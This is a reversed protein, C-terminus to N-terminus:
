HASKVAGNGGGAGGTTVLHVGEIGALSRFGGAAVAARAFSTQIQLAELRLDVSHLEARRKLAEDLAPELDRQSEAPVRVDTPALRMGWLADGRDSTLMMKLANEANTVLGVATVFRDVRRQLEAEAGSIEVPALTGSEVQRKSRDLQDQALRVGDQAVTADEIAAVLDWYNGQVVTVVDIVRVEFEIKSQHVQKM